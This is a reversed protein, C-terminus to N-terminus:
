EVEQAPEIAVFRYDRYGSLGTREDSAVYNRTELGFYKIGASEGDFPVDLKLKREGDILRVYGEPIDAQIDRGGWLRAFSDVYYCDDGETDNVYRGTIAGDERILHLEEKDNFIRAEVIDAPVAKGDSLVIQSGDWRGWTIKRYTWIVLSATDKVYRAVLSNLAWADAIDAIKVNEINEKKVAGHQLVLPNKALALGHQKIEGM